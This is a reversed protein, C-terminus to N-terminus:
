VSNKNAITYNLLSKVRIFFPSTLTPHMPNITDVTVTNKGWDYNINLNNFYIASIKSTDDYYRLFSSGFISDSNNLAFKTLSSYTNFALTDGPASNSTLSIYDICDLSNIRELTKSLIQDTSQSFCFHFNCTLIFLFIKKM